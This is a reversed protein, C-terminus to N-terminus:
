HDASRGRNRTTAAVRHAPDAALFARLGLAILKSRDLGAASAYAKTVALLKPDMSVLFRVVKQSTPCVNRDAMSNDLPFCKM